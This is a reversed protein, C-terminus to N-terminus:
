FFLAEERAIKDNRFCIPEVVHQSDIIRVELGLGDIGDDGM